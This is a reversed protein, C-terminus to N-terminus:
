RRAGSPYATRDFHLGAFGAEALRPVMEAVPLAAIEHQWRATARGEVSGHSWRLHHSHLYPKIQVFPDFGDIFPAEPLRVNPLQFIRSGAPPAAELQAVYRRDIEFFKSELRPRRMTIEPIQDFLGCLTVLGFGLV